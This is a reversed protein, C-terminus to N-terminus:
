DQIKQNKGVGATGVVIKSWARFMDRDESPIGLVEAFAIVPLPYSLADILDVTGTELARDLLGDAVDVM